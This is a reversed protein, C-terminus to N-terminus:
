TSITICARFFDEDGLKERLMQLVLGGKTYINGETEVSEDVPADRDARRVIAESEDLSKRREVIRVGRRRQWFTKRDLLHEFYTAFGENLWLNAWDKCTVLDGFWQHALEHSNLDDSAYASEAALKPHVLGRSTLTTASTNEMGGVVFDDVSTQAYKAWPYRM